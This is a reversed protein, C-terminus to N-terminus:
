EENTKICPIIKLLPFTPTIIYMAGCICMAIFTFIKSKKNSKLLIEKAKIILANGCNCYVVGPSIWCSIYNKFCDWFKLVGNMQSMIGHLNTTLAQCKLPVNHKQSALVQNDVSTVDHEILISEQVVGGHCGWVWVNLKILYFSLVLCVSVQKMIIIITAM